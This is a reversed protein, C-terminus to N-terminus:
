QKFQVINGNEDRLPVDENDPNNNYEHLLKQFRRQWYGLLTNDAYINALDQDDWKMHTQEQMFRHKAKSYIGFTRDIVDNWNNPKILIDALVLKRWRKGRDGIQFNENEKIRFKLVYEATELSADRMLVIPVVAHARHAPIVYLGKVEPDDFAKYHTGALANNASDLMVQELEYRREVESPAGISYIDFYVTDLMKDAAVSLFTFAKLTDEWESAQNYIKDPTPGFQLRAGDEYTLYNDDQCAYFLWGAIVALIIINRKM